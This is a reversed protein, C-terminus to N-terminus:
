HFGLSSTSGSLLSLLLDVWGGPPAGRGRVAGSRVWEADDLRGADALCSSLNNLSTALVHECAAPKAVTLQRYVAVAEEIAVLAETREM